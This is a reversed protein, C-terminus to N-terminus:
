VSVKYVEFVSFVGKEYLIGNDLFAQRDCIFNNVKTKEQFLGFKNLCTNWKRSLANDRYILDNLISSYYDGSPFAYDYGLFRVGQENPFSPITMLPCDTQTKCYLLRINIGLDMCTQAYHKATEYDVLFPYSLDLYSMEYIAAILPSSFPIDLPWANTDVGFYPKNQLFVPSETVLYGTAEKNM